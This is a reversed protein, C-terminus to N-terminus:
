LTLIGTYEKILNQLKDVKSKDTAFKMANRTMASTLDSGNKKLSDELKKRTAESVQFGRATKLGDWKAKIDAKKADFAKQAGDIDGVDIKQIMENTVGNMETMFAEVEAEKSCGVLALSVTLLLFVAIKRM